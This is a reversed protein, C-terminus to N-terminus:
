VAGDKKHRNLRRIKQKIGTSQKCIKLGQWNISVGYTNDQFINILFPCIDDITIIIHNPQTQVTLVMPVQPITSGM